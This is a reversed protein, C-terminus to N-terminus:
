NEPRFDDYCESPPGDRRAAFISVGNRACSEIRYRMSAWDWAECAAEYERNSHDEEDLLPYDELSRQIEEAVDAAYSGPAVLIIEFWGPGWHGFRHVEVTEGEGGLMELAAAFNSEDFPGSDRNQSVPVLLWDQRESMNGYAGLGKSDFPTPAFDSYRQMRKEM